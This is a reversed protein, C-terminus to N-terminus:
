SRWALFIVFGPDIVHHADSVWTTRCMKRRLSHLGDSDRLLISKPTVGVAVTWHSHVGDIGLIAVQGQSLREGLLRWLAPLSPREAIAKPVRRVILRGGFRRRVYQNANLITRRVRERSLGDAVLPVRGTDEARLATMLAQFLRRAKPKTLGPILAQVANVVAYVGCLSDLQGQAFPTPRPRRRPARAKDRQAM